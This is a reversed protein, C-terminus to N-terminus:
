FRQRRLARSLCEEPCTSVHVTRLRLCGLSGHDLWGHIPTIRIRLSDALSFVSTCTGLVLIIQGDKDENEAEDEDEREPRAMSMQHEQEIVSDACQSKYVGIEAPKGVPGESM